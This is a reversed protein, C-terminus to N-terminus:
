EVAQGGIFLGRLSGAPVWPRVAAVARWRARDAVTEDGAIELLLRRAAERPEGPSARLVNQAIAVSADPDIGGQADRRMGHAERLARVFDPSVARGLSGTLLAQARVRSDLDTAAIGLLVEEDQAGMGSVLMARARPHDGQAVLANYESSLSDLAGDRTGLTLFELYQTGDTLRALASAALDVPASAAIARTIAGAMEPDDRARAHMEEAVQLFDQPQSSLLASLSIGVATSDRTDGLLLSYLEEYGGTEKLDDAVNELLLSIIPALDPHEARLALIRPLWAIGVIPRDGARAEVLGRVVQELWPMATEPLADLVRGLFERCEPPGSWGPQGYLSVGSLITLVAGQLAESDGEMEGGVLLDLVAFADRPDQLLAELNSELAEADSEAYARAVARLQSLLDPSRVDDEAGSADDPDPAASTAARAAREALELTTEGPRAPSHDPELSGAGSVPRTGPLVVLLVLLAVGAAGLLCKLAIKVSRM